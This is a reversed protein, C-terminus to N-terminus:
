SRWACRSLPRDLTRARLAIQGVVVLVLMVDILPYLLALLLAIGDSSLGATLPSVLLAGALCATGGCVVVADLWAALGANRRNASDIILYAAMGVASVLFFGEGPSPFRTLDPHPSANLMASGVSWVAVSVTLVTLARRRRPTLVIAACLRLLLALFFIGLVTAVTGSSAHGGGSDLIVGIVSGAGLIVWIAASLVAPVLRTWQRARGPRRALVGHYTVM